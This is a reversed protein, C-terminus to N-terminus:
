FTSASVTKTFVLYIYATLQRVFGLKEGPLLNATLSIHVSAWERLKGLLCSGLFVPEKYDGEECAIVKKHLTKM